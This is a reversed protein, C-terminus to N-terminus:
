GGARFKQWDISARISWNRNKIESLVSELFYIITRMYSERALIKQYDTDAEILDSIDAKLTKYQWQAWNQEELEAKTLEGRFYRGKLAKLESIEHTIKTHKLKANVLEDLYKSHLLPSKIAANGLDDPIVCDEKWQSKLEELTAM